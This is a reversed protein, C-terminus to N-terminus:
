RRGFLTIQRRDRPIYFGVGDLLDSRSSRLTLDFYRWSFGRDNFEFLVRIEDGERKANAETITFWYIYSQRYDLYLNKKQAYCVADVKGTPSVAAVELVVDYNSGIFVWTGLLPQFDSPTGEGKGASLTAPDNLPRACGILLVSVILLLAYAISPAKRGIRDVDNREQVRPTADCKM